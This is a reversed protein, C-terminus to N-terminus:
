HGLSQFVGELRASMEHGPLARDGEMVASYLVDRGAVTAAGEAWGVM